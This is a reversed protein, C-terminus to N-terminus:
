DGIAESPEAPRLVGELLGEIRAVRQELGGVRDGLARIDARLWGGITLILGGLGVLLAAGVAIIGILEASVGRLRAALSALISWLPGSVARERTGPRDTPIRARIRGKFALFPSKPTSGPPAPARLPGYVPKGARPPRSSSMPRDRQSERPQM